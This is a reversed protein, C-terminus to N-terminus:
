INPNLSTSTSAKNTTIPRRQLIGNCENMRWKLLCVSKHSLSLSLSLFPCFSLCVSVCISLCVSLRLSLCVSVCVFLCVSVWFSLCVSLCACQCVSPCDALCVSLFYLWFPVFVFFHISYSYISRILYFSLSPSLSPCLWISTMVLSIFSSFLLIFTSFFSSVSLIFSISLFFSVSFSVSLYLDYCSLHLYFFTFLFSFFIPEILSISLFLSVSLSMVLSLFFFFFSSISLILCISPFLCVSLFFKLSLCLSFLDCMLFFYSISLLFPILYALTNTGLFKKLTTLLAQWLPAGKNGLQLGLECINCHSFCELKSANETLQLFYLEIVNVHWPTTLCLILKHCEWNISYFTTNKFM